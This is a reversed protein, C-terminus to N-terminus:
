ERLAITAIAQAAIAEKRGLFGVGETTTAKISIANELLGTIAAIRAIMAQRHPSIKPAECIITVDLNHVRGGRAVLRRLADSLFVASNVGQWKPDSPPFHIGIDGDGMAGLIADTLAHLGVDGDSHAEIGQSHPIPVGCIMLHDGPGFRHVDFGQGVRLLQQAGGLMRQARIFDEPRTVKFNDQSGAVLRVPIGAAEAVAADDTLDATKMKRHAELIASFHFGQPTQAQWLGDRNITAAIHGADEKKLTDTVPLAAIVGADTALGTLVSQVIASNVFPRAADHILVYDPANPELSELGLRVSEQRTAGGFVPDPLSLGQVAQKYLALDDPHIVVQTADIGPHTAFAEVTLRLVAKDGLPLYQKPLEGGLRHGRGAAVILAICGTM